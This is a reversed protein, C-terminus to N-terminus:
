AKLRAVVVLQSSEDVFPAGEIDGDWREIEFGASELLARLQSPYLYHQSIVQPVIQEGDPTQIHFEYEVRVQQLSPEWGGGEYVEAVLGHGDVTALFEKAEEFPESGLDEAEVHYVDLILKGGPRLHKTVQRLTARVDEDSQLCFLTNFPILVRDFFCDLAFTRMDGEVLRAVPGAEPVRAMMQRAYELMDPDLELGTVSLGRELMPLLFRGYGCGLELVSEAGECQALYYELDGPTGTHLLSFLRPGLRPGNENERSPHDSSNM